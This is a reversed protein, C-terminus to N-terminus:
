GVFIWIIQCVHFFFRRQSIFENFTVKGRYAMSILGEDTDCVCDTVHINLATAMFFGAM